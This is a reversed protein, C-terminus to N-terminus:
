TLQDNKCFGGFLQREADSGTAFTTIIKSMVM